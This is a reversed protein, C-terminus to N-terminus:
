RAMLADLGVAMAAAVRWDLRQDPVDVLYTDRVGFKKTSSMVPQGAGDTFDFHFPLPVDVLRRIIAIAANREQGTSEVAPTSLHFTTRLLSQKFDKRFSGISQGGTDTVDYTAGLDVRQQARFGFVPTGRDPDSYFTVQERFAMRKQQATALLGAPKGDPGRRHVDYRNVMMTIKQTVVLAPEHAVM